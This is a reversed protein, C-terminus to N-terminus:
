GGAGPGSQWEDRVEPPIATAPWNAYTLLKARAMRETHRICLEQWIDFVASVDAKALVLCDLFHDIGRALDSDFVAFHYFLDTTAREPTAREPTNDHAM